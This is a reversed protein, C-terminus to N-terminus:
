ENQFRKRAGNGIELRYKEETTKTVQRNKGITETFFTLYQIAGLILKLQQQDKPHKLDLM